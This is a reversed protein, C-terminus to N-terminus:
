PKCLTMELFPVKHRRQGKAIVDEIAHSLPMSFLAEVTYPMRWSWNSDTLTGPVNIRHNGKLFVDELGLALWDQLLEIHFIGPGAALYKLILPLGEKVRIDDDIWAGHEISFLNELYSIENIAQSFLQREFVADKHPVGIEWMFQDETQIYDRVKLFGSGITETEFLAYLIRNIDLKKQELLHCFVAEPIKGIEDRLWGVLTSTDHTASCSVGLLRFEDAKLFAGDGEWDRKWRQVDLGAMGMKELTPEIYDPAVGLDEACILLQTKGFMKKLVKKGQKEAEKIDEPFYQGELGGRNEPTTSLIRWSRFYGLVHDVRLVHFFNEMYNLRHAFYSYKSEELAEWNFTPMGWRQGYPTFMDPPAGLVYDFNFLDREMWCDASDKAPAFPLDGKLHVGLTAANQKVMSLQLFAIYQLWKYFFIEKAHDRRINNMVRSDNDQLGNEWRWWVDKNVKVKILKFLAYSDLWYKQDKCFKAFGTSLFHDYKESFFAFLFEQKLVKVSYDVRDGSYAATMEKFRQLDEHTMFPIEALSIYMPDCAFTSITDYPSFGQGTDYLPLLQVLSLGVRSCWQLFLGLSSFDGCGLDEETRLSFLPVVVGAHKGRWSDEEPLSRYFHSYAEKQKM